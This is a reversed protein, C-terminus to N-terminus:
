KIKSFVGNTSPTNVAIPEFVGKASGTSIAARSNTVPVLTTSAPPKVFYKNVVEPKVGIKKAATMGIPKRTSIDEVKLKPNSALAAEIFGDPDPCSARSIASVLKYDKIKKGERALNIIREGVAKLHANISSTERYIVVLEDENLELLPKDGGVIDITRQMRARCTARAPCYYCSDSALTYNDKRRALEVAKKFKDQWHIMDAINYSHTRIAGDVHDARPQIITTDIITVTDWLELTDLTAVAYFIAQSNDKVEVTAFGHKYDLVILLSGIVIICDSTGFVDSGVSSMVVREELMPNVGNKKCIVRIHGVYLQVADCMMADVVHKNFVMGICDYTNCGTQLCFEGLEHAATGLEAADSTTSKVGKSMRISAPCKMWRKSSSASYVSHAIDAM